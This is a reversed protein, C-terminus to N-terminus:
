SDQDPSFRHLCEDGFWLKDRTVAPLPDHRLVTASEGLRLAFATVNATTGQAVRLHGIRALADARTRAAQHAFNGGLAQRETEVASNWRVHRDHDLDGQAILHEQQRATGYIARSDVTDELDANM